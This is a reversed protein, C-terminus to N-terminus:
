TLLELTLYDIGAAIPASQIYTTRETVEKSQHLDTSQGTYLSIIVELSSPSM